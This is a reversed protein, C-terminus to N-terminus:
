SHPRVLVIHVTSLCYVDVVNNSVRDLMGQVVQLMWSKFTRERGGLSDGSHASTVTVYCCVACSALCTAYLTSCVAPLKFLVACCLVACCLVACFAGKQVPALRQGGAGVSMSDVLDAAACFRPYSSSGIGFVAYPKQKLKGQETVSESV